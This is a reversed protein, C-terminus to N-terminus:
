IGLSREILLAMFLSGLLLAEQLTPMEARKEVMFARGFIASKKRAYLVGKENCVVVYAPILFPRLLVLEALVTGILKLLPLVEVVQGVEHGKVDLIQYSVNWIERMEQTHWGRARYAQITKYLSRWRSTMGVRVLEGLYEGDARKIAYHAADDIVRDAKIHLQYPETGAEEYIDVVEKLALARQKIHLIPREAADMVHIKRGFSFPEFWLRLPYQFM